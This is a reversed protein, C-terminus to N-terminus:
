LNDILRLNRLERRLVARASELLPRVECGIVKESM